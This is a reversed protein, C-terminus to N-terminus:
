EVSTDVMMQMTIMMRKMKMREDTDYDFYDIIDIFIISTGNCCADCKKDLLIKMMEVNNSM